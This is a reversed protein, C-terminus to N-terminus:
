LMAAYVLRFWATLLSLEKNTIRFFVYLGWAAIVDCILIILWSFVGLRYKIKSEMINNLTAAADNEVVLGGITVDTAMVAAVTMMVIASGSTLASNLQATSMIHTNM